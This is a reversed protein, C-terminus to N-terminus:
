FQNTRNVGLLAQVGFEIPKSITGVLVSERNEYWHGILLLMAQRASQPVDVPNTWGAVYTVCIANHERLSTAPWAQDHKLWLKGPESITDVTYVSSALTAKVDDTDYYEVKTVSQLPPRPLLIANSAPWADLWLEITQTLFARWAIRECMDRAVSILTALLANDDDIDVRCQAKAEALTLPEIAPPTIVKIPM